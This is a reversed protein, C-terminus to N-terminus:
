ETRRLRVRVDAAWVSFPDLALYAQWHERAAAFDGKDALTEALNLHADAYDPELDLAREFAQVAEEVEKTEALM